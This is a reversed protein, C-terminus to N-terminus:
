ARLDQVAAITGGQIALRRDIAQLKTQDTLLVMVCCPRDLHAIAGEPVVAPVPPESMVQVTGDADAMGGGGEVVRVLARRDFSGEDSSDADWKFGIYDNTSLILGAPLGYLTVLSNWDADATESWSSAAGIFPTGDVKTMRSFGCIHALPYPRGLDRGFFRRQQGRMRSKWSRWIDSRRAGIKGITWIAMWLPAGAQVGGVAGGGEPSAFGITMPEFEQQSAGTEPFDLPIM